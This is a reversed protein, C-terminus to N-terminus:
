LRRLLLQLCALHVFGLFIQSHYEWRGAMPTKPSGCLMELIGDIRAETIPWQLSLYKRM